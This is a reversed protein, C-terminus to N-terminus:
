FVSTILTLTDNSTQSAPTKESNNDSYSTILRLETVASVCAEDM